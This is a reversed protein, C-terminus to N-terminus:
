LEQSELKLVKFKGWMGGNPSSPRWVGLGTILGAFDLHKQLVDKTILEDLVTITAIGAWQDIVPFYRWGRPSNMKSPTLSTFIRDLRTDAPTIDAYDLPLSVVELRTDAPTVDVAAGNGNGSVPRQIMIPENVLVGRKFNKTYTAKGQGVIQMKVYQATEELCKKFAMPPIFIRGTSTHLRNLYTRKDYAEPQERELKPTDHHRGQCYPTTSQLHATYLQM